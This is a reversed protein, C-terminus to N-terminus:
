SAELPLRGDYRTTVVENEPLLSDVISDALVHTNIGCRCNFLKGLFCSQVHGDNIPQTKLPFNVAPVFQPAPPVWNGWM